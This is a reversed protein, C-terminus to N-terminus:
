KVMGCDPHARGMFPNQVVPSTQIWDGFKITDCPECDAPCGPMSCGMRYYGTNGSALKIVRSSVAAFALRAARLSKAQSLASAAQQIRTDRAAYVLPSAAGRANALDDASLAARVLEYQQIMLRSDATLRHPLSYWVVLAIIIPLVAGATLLGLRIHRRTPHWVQSAKSPHGPGSGSARIKTRSPQM